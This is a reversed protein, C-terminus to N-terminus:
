GYAKGEMLMREERFPDDVRRSPVDFIVASRRQPDFSPWTLGEIPGPVGDRAFAVWASSMTRALAIRAPDRGALSVRDAIDFVFPLEFGHAAMPRGPFATDSPMPVRYAFTYVFVAPTGGAAQREAVLETDQQLRATAIAVLLEAPSAEPRGEQFARIIGDARDGLAIAPHSAVRERLGKADLTAFMPDSDFKFTAADDTTTGILLPIGRAPAAAVPDFPHSPLLRRGAVPRFRSGGALRTLTGTPLSQLARINAATISADMALRQAVEAAEDTGVTRLLVPGSQIVARRFLGRASPLALLCAVKAGGGSHGAITVAAPDGGFAAINDRVWELALRLDLLGAVGSADWEDGGISTLDLYGLVGLRHNVSVVVVDHRAAIAAGCTLDSAGSGWSFGGGHLWVIVPRRAAGTASTWVNLSLCDESFTATATYGAYTSWLPSTPLYARDAPTLTPPCAPGFTVAERVGPWPEPIRPAHFRAAGSTAAGYPVGRFVLAGAEVTGRIRGHSTDVVAGIVVDPRVGCGAERPVSPRDM